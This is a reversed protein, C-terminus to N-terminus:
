TESSLNIWLLPWFNVKHFIVKIKKLNNLIQFLIGKSTFSRSKPFKLGHALATKIICGSGDTNPFLICHINNNFIWAPVVRAHWCWGVEAEAMGLGLRAKLWCLRSSSLNWCIHVRGKSSCADDYYHEIKHIYVFWIIM